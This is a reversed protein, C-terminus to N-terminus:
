TEHNHEILKERDTVGQNYGHKYGTNYANNALKQVILLQKYDGCYNITMGGRRPNGNYYIGDETIKYAEFNPLTSMICSQKIM